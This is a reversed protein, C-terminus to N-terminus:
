SATIDRIHLKITTVEFTTVMRTTQHDSIRVVSQSTGPEIRPEAILIKEKFLFIGMTVM